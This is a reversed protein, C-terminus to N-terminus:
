NHLFLLEKRNGVAVLDGDFHKEVCKVHPRDKIHPLSHKKVGTDDQYALAIVQLEVDSLRQFLQNEGQSPLV